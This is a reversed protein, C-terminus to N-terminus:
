RRIFRLKRDTLSITTIPVFLSGAGKTERLPTQLWRFADHGRCYPCLLESNPGVM